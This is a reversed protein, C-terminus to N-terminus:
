ASGPQRCPTVSRDDIGCPTIRAMVNSGAKSQDRAVPSRVTKAHLMGDRKVDSPYKAAGTSKAPGDLRSLPKGILSRSQPELQLPKGDDKISLPNFIEVVLQAPDTQLSVGRITVPM